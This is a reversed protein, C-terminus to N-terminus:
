NPLVTLGVVLITSPLYNYSSVILNRMNIREDDTEEGRDRIRNGVEKTGDVYM